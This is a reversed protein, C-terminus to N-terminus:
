RAQLVMSEQGCGQKCGWWLMAWSLWETALWAEALCGKVSDCPHWSQNLRCWHLGVFHEHAELEEDITQLCVILQESNSVNFFKMQRHSYFIISTQNSCCNGAFSGTGHYGLTWKSDWSKHITDCDCRELKFFWWVFIGIRKRQWDDEDQRNWPMWAPTVFLWIERSM